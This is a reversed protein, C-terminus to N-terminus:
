QSGASGPAVRKFRLDFVRSGRYSIEQAPGSGERIFKISGGQAQFEDKATARLRMTTDPRRKLVLAADQIAVEFLVEAEARSIAIHQDGGYAYFIRRLLNVDAETVVGPKYAGGRLM